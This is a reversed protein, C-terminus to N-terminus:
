FSDQGTAELKKRQYELQKDLPWNKLDAPDKIRSADVRQIPEGAGSPSTITPTLQMQRAGGNGNQKVKPAWKGSELLVGKAYRIADAPGGPINQSQWYKMVNAAEARVEPDENVFAAQAEVGGIRSNIGGIAADIRAQLALTQKQSQKAFYAAIQAPTADDALTEEVPEQKPLNVQVPRHMAQALQAVLQQQNTLLEELQKDKAHIKATLEDFRKQVSSKEEDQASVDDLKLEVVGEPDNSQTNDQEM